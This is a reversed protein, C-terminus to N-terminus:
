RDIVEPDTLIYIYNNNYHFFWTRNRPQNIPRKKIHNCPLTAATGAAM